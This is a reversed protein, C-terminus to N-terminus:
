SEKRRFSRKRRVAERHELEAGRILLTANVASGGQTFGRVRVAKRVPLTARAGSGQQPADGLYFPEYGM